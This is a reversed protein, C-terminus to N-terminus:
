RLDGAPAAGDPAAESLARDRDIARQLDQETVPHMETRGSGGANVVLFTATRRFADFSLGQLREEEIVVEYDGAPLAEGAHSLAFPHRFAVTTRSSRSEM